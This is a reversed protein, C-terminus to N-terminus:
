LRRWQGYTDTLPAALPSAAACHFTYKTANAVYKSLYMKFIDQCFSSVQRTVKGLHQEKLYNLRLSTLILSNILHINLVEELQVVTTTIIKTTVTEFYLYLSTPKLQSFSEEAL